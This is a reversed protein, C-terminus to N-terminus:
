KLETASAIRNMSLRSALWEHFTKTGTDIPWAPSEERRGHSSDQSVCTQSSSDPSVCSDPCLFGPVCMLTGVSAGMLDWKCWFLTSDRTGFNLTGM